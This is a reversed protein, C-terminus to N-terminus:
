QVFRWPGEPFDICRYEQSISMLYWFSWDGNSPETTLSIIKSGIKNLTDLLDSFNDRHSSYKWVMSVSLEPFTVYAEQSGCFRREGRAAEPMKRWFNLGPNRKWRTVQHMRCWITCWAMQFRHIFLGRRSKTSDQCGLFLKNSAHKTAIFVHTVHSLNKVM